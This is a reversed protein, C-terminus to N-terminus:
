NVYLGGWQSVNLRHMSATFSIVQKSHTRQRHQSNLASHSSQKGVTCSENYHYLCICFVASAMCESLFCVFFFLVLTNCIHLLICDSFIHKRQKNLFYISMAPTRPPYAKASMRREGAQVNSWWRQEAKSPVVIGTVKQSLSAPLSVPGKSLLQTLQALALKVM